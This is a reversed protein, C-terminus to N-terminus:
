QNRGYSPFHIQCLNLIALFMERLRENLIDLFTRAVAYHGFILAPLNVLCLESLLTVETIKGDKTFINGHSQQELIGKRKLSTSYKNHERIIEVVTRDIMNQFFIIKYVLQTLKVYSKRAGTQEESSRIFDASADQFPNFDISFIEYPM